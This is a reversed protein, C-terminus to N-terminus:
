TKARYTKTKPNYSVLKNLNAHNQLKYNLSMDYKPHGKFSPNSVLKETKIQRHIKDQITLTQSPGSPQEPPQQTNQEEEATLLYQEIIEIPSESQPQDDLLEEIAPM